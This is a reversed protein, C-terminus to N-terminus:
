QKTVPETPNHRSTLAIRGTPLFLDTYLTRTEERGRRAM